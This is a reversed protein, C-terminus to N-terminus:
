AQKGRSVDWPNDTCLHRENCLCQVPPARGPHPLRVLGSHFTQDSGFDPDPWRACSCRTSLLDTAFVVTSLEHQGWLECFAPPVLVAGMAVLVYSHQGSRVEGYGELTLQPGPWSERYSERTLPPGLPSNVVRNFSPLRNSSRPMNSTHELCMPDLLSRCIVHLLVISVYAIGGIGEMM